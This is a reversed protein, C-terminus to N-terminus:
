EGRQEELATTGAYPDRLEIPEGAQLLDLTPRSLRGEALLQEWPDDANPLPGLLAVPEGHDTVVFREGGAVRRIYVSLNQRLERIGIEGM